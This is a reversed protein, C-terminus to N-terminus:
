GTTNVWTATPQHRQIHQFQVKNITLLINNWTIEEYKPRHKRRDDPASSQIQQEIKIALEQV